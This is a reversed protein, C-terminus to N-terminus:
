IFKMTKKFKSFEIKAGQWHLFISIIFIQRMTRVRM